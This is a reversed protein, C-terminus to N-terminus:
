KGLLRDCMKCPCKNRSQAQKVTVEEFQNDEDGAGCLPNGDSNPEHYAYGYNAAGNPSTLVIDDTGRWDSAAIQERELSTPNSNAPM